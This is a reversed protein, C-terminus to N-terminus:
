PRKANKLAWRFDCRDAGTMITGTRKLKVEDGGFVEIQTDDFACTLAFGLEPEGLERFFQAYRCGIVNVEIADADDRLIEVDVADGIIQATAVTGARVQEAPTGSPVSMGRWVQDRWGALAGWAIRNAREEGLEKRFAKLVPVLVQAQIKAQELSPSPAPNKAREASPRAAVEYWTMPKDQNAM